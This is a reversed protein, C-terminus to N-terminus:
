KAKRSSKGAPEGTEAPESAKAPAVARAAILPAAAAETLDVEGDRQIDEGVKIPSIVTYKSM